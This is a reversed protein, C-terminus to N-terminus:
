PKKRKLEKIFSYQSAILVGCGAATLLHEIGIDWNLRNLMKFSQFFKTIGMFAALILIGIKVEKQFQSAKQTYYYGLAIIITFILTSSRVPNTAGYHFSGILMLLFPLYNYKKMKLKKCFFM